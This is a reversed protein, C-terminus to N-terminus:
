SSNRPMMLPSPPTRAHSSQWADRLRVVYCHVIPVIVIPSLMALTTSRPWPQCQASVPRFRQGPPTLPLIPRMSRAFLRSEPRCLGNESSDLLGNTYYLRNLDSLQSIDASVHTSPECPSERATKGITTFCGTPCVVCITPSWLWMILLLLIVKFLSARSPAHVM